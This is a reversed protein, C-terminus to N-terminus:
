RPKWFSWGQGKATESFFQTPPAWDPHLGENWLLATVGFKRLYRDPNVRVQPCINGILNQFHQALGNRETAAVPPSGHLFAVLSTEEGSPDPAFATALCFREVYESDSILLVRAHNVFVIDDDTYLAIFYNTIPDSLM